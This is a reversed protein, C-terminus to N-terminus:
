CGPTWLHVELKQPLLYGHRLGQLVEAHEGVQAAMSVLTAAGARQVALGISALAGERRMQAFVNKPTEVGVATGVPINEIEPCRHMAQREVFGSEM